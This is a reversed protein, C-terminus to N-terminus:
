QDAGRLDRDVRGLDVPDCQIKIIPDSVVSAPDGTHTLRNVGNVTLQILM